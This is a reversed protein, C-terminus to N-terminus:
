YGSFIMITLIIFSKKNCLISHIVAYSVRHRKPDKVSKPDYRLMCTEYAKKQNLCDRIGRVGADTDEPSTKKSKEFLCDFFTDAIKVCSKTTRPFYDPLIENSKLETSM